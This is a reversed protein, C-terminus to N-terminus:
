GLEKYLQIKAKAMEVLDNLYEIPCNDYIWMLDFRKNIIIIDFDNHRISYACEYELVKFIESKYEFDFLEIASM